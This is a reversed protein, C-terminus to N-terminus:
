PKCGAGGLRFRDRDGLVEVVVASVVAGTAAAGGISTLCLRLPRVM